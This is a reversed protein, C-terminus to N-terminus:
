DFELIDNIGLGQKYRNILQQIRDEKTLKNNYRVTVNPLSYQNYDPKILISAILAILDTDKNPPTPYIIDDSEIEYDRECYAFISIWVLAARIFETLETDSYKYYTYDVEIQDNITLSATVGLKNTTSDFSYQGSGLQSGNHLVKAITIINLQSITFISSTKYTFVEVDSKALDEILARIKSRIVDLM